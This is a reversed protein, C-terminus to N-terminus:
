PTTDAAGGAQNQGSLNEFNELVWAADDDERTLVLRMRLETASGRGTAESRVDQDVFALVVVQNEDQVRHALDAVSGTLVLEGAAAFERISAVEDQYAEALEPTIFDELWAFDEELSEHSYSTMEVLMERAADEASVGASISRQLEEAREAEEHQQWWGWAAVVVAVVLAVALVVVPRSRAGRDTHETDQERTVRM